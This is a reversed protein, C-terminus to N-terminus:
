RNRRKRARLELVAFVGGVIILIGGIIIVPVVGIGM